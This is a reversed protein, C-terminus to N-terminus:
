GTATARFLITNDVQLDTGWILEAADNWTIDDYGIKPDVDAASWVTAPSWASDDFDVDTWGDPAEVSTFECTADPDSDSVCDTNLPAQHIVLTSWSSDTVFVEGSNNDTIQVIMGGDGMQQDSEGIYELGSDTEKYDKGEMAITLPYTADFTFTESNFSRETTISVSDEGIYEGNVYLSFWNDVWVEATFTSTTGAAASESTDAEESATDESSSQDAEAEEETESTTAEGAEAETETETEDSSGCAALLLALAALLAFTRHM